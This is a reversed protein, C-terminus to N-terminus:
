DADVAELEGPGEEWIKIEDNGYDITLRPDPDGRYVVDQRQGAVLPYVEGLPELVLSVERGSENVVTLRIEIRRARPM